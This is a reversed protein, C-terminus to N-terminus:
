EGGGKHRNRNVPESAALKTSILRLGPDVPKPTKRRDLLKQVRLV